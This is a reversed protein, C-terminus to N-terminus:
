PIGSARPVLKVLALLHMPEEGPTVIQFPRPGFYERDFHRKPKNLPLGRAIRQANTLQREAPVPRAAAIPTAAVTLALVLYLLAFFTTLKTAAAFMTDTTNKKRNGFAPFSYIYYSPSRPFTSAILVRTYEVFMHIVPCM